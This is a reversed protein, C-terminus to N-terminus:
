AVSSGRKLNEAEEFGNKGDVAGLHGYGLAGRKRDQGRCREVSVPARIVRRIGGAPVM